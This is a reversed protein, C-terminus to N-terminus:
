SFRHCVTAVLQAFFHVVELEDEVRRHSRSPELAVLSSQAAAALQVVGRRQAECLAQIEYVSEKTLILARVAEAVGKVDQPRM